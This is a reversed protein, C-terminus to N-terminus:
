RLHEFNDENQFIECLTTIIKDNELWNNSERGRTAKHRQTKLEIKRACTETRSLLFFLSLARALEEQLVRTISIQLKIIHEHQLFSTQLEIYLRM